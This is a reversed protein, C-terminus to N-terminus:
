VRGPATGDLGLAHLARIAGGLGQLAEADPRPGPDIDGRFGGRWETIEGLPLRDLERGGREALPHVRGRDLHQGRDIHGGVAAIQDPGVDDVLHDVTVPRAVRNLGAHDPLDDARLGGLLHLLHHDADDLMARTEGRADVAELVPDGALGAGGADRLVAAIRLVLRDPGEDPKQWGIVWLEDHHHDSALGPDEEFAGIHRGGDPLGDGACQDGLPLDCRSLSFLSATPIDTFSTTSAVRPRKSPPGCSALKLWSKMSELSTLGPPRNTANRPSCRSPCTKM